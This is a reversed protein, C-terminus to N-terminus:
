REVHAAQRDPDRGLVQHLEELDPELMGVDAELDEVARGVVLRAPPVIRPRMPQAIARGALGLLVAGMGLGLLGLERGIGDAIEELAAGKGRRFECVIYFACAGLDGNTSEAASRTPHKRWPLPPM